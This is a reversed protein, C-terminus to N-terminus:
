QDLLQLTWAELAATNSRNIGLMLRPIIGFKLAPKIGGVWQIAKPWHAKHSQGFADLIYKLNERKFNWRYHMAPYVLWEDGLLEFMSSVLRQKLGSPTISRDKYTSELEDLIVSSDQVFNGQPTELVPVVRWGGTAPKIIENAVKKSVGIQEFPLGKYRLYSHVKNTYYSVLSGYLYYRNDVKDTSNM